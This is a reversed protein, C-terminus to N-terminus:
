SCKPTIASIVPDCYKNPLTARVSDAANLIEPAVHPYTVENQFWADM